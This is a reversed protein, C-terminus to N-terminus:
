FVESQPTRGLRKQLRCDAAIGCAATESVNAVVAVFEVLCDVNAGFLAVTVALREVVDVRCHVADNDADVAYRAVAAVSAVDDEGMRILVDFDIREVRM